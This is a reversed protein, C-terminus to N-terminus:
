KEKVVGCDHTALYTLLKEDTLAEEATIVAHNDQPNTFQALVFVFSKNGVKFSKSPIAAKKKAVPASKDGKAALLVEQEEIKDSLQNNVISLEELNTELDKVTQELVAIKEEPTVNESAPLEDKKAM